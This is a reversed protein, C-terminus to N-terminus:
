RYPQLPTLSKVAESGVRDALQDLTLDCLEDIWDGVFYLSRRGDMLGFLIPDKRAAKEAETEMFSKQGPDYHLVAYNDFLGLEDARSKRAVVDEPIPRGFNAVWTLSLGKPSKKVFQVITEEEVFKTLGIAVLQAEARQHRAGAILKEALAKQGSARANRLMDEFGRAREEVVSLEGASNKVSAFFEAVTMPPPAGPPPLLPRPAERRWLKWFEWWKRRKPLEPGMVSQMARVIMDNRSQFSRSTVISTFDEVYEDSESVSLDFGSSRLDVVEKGDKRFKPLDRDIRFDEFVQLHGKDATLM